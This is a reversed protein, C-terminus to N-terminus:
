SGRSQYSRHVGVACGGALTKRCPPDPARPWSMDLLAYGAESAGVALPAPGALTSASPPRITSGPSIATARTGVFLVDGESAAIGQTLLARGFCERGLPSWDPSAGTMRSATFATACSGRDRSPEVDLRVLDGPGIARNADAYFTQISQKGDRIM